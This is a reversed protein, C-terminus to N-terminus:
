GSNKRGHRGCGSASMIRVVLIVIVCISDQEVVVM